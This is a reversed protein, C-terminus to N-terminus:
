PRSNFHELGYKNSVVATWPKCEKWIYVHKFRTWDYGYKVDREADHLVIYDAHDKFRIADIGRRASPHHDIFLVGCRVPKIKNWDTVLRIRHEKSQFNREYDYYDRAHEYTTLKRGYLKCLWHLLPTSFPGGGMEIVDGDSAQVAKILVGMHTTYNKSLNATLQLKHFSM